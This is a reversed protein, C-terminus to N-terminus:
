GANSTRSCRLRPTSRSPPRVTERPSRRGVFPDSGEGPPRRGRPDPHSHPRPRRLYTAAKRDDPQIARAAEAKACAADVNGSEWGAEADRKAEALEAAKRRGTEIDAASVSVVASGGGTGLVLDEADRVEVTVEITGPESRQARTQRTRPNGGLTTGDNVRWLYRLNAPDGPPAPTIDARFAVDRFPTIATPPLTELGKGPRWIVPRSTSAEWAPGLNVVKVDYSAPTVSVSGRGLEEAHLHERVHATVMVGGPEKPVFTYVRPDATPGAHLAAGAIEWWWGVDGDPLKPTEFATVTVLQGVLPTAPEIRLAVEAGIM